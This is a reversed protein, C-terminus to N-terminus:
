GTPCLMPSPSTMPLPRSGHHSTPSRSPSTESTPGGAGDLPVSDLARIYDSVIITHKVHNVFTYEGEDDTARLPYEMGELLYALLRSDLKEQGALRGNRGNYCSARQAPLNRALIAGADSYGNTRCTHIGYTRNRGWTGDHGNM